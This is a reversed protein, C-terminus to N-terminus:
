RVTLTVASSTLKKGNADTIICRYQIGNYKALVPVSLTATKASSYGSNTWTGDPYKYQWQYKLGAGTATVTFKVTAGVSATISKPQATIKPDITLTVASSTITKGNADTIKCRYQMKNYKAQAAFSLSATKGSTYGSNTWSGDPYKYQWQYKLGAGTATVTFKATAGVYASISKPQATIKPTITLTVASSTVTKGNVDTIRCRYQVKNYKAQAVFGLEASKASTFGSNTWSGDPYKYQWQYTLGVGTAIVSFRAASGVAASTSKPQTKIVTKITLTVVDSTTKKGRSDTIICRYKLGNYKEQATFNLSATKASTFGSNKWSENPYKYQWQYKLGTGSASVTFKATNGIAASQNKPQTLIVPGTYVATAKDCSLYSWVDNGCADEGEDEDIYDWEWYDGADYSTGKLYTRVLIPCSSINLETLENYHSELHQLVACGSLDLQTLRNSGCYLDELNHCESLDLSTLMNMSCDFEGLVSCDSVDVETLENTDCILERLSYCGNVNLSTMDNGSCDLTNLDACMSVDLDELQNYSCSLRLLGSCESVDLQTLSNSDCFLKELAPCSGVNLVRLSNYQCSLERLDSCAGVNLSTLRNSGVDLYKIAPSGTLTLTQLADRDCYLSTLGSCGSINLTSLATNGGCSLNKLSSHGSVNLTTLQNDYCYLSVLNSCGNVNLSTLENFACYLTTLAPFASMDLSALQNYDCDLYELASCGSINLSSIGNERCFIQKLSTCGSVDLSTLDNGICSLSELETFYRVGKLSEIEMSIVSINKVNSIETDSLSGDNNKDFNERVYSRFEPDPFNASSIAVSGGAEAKRSLSLAFVTLALFLFKM